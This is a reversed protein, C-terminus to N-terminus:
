RPGLSETPHTQAYPLGLIKFIARLYARYGHPLHYKCCGFSLLAEAVAVADDFEIIGSCVLWRTRRYQIVYSYGVPIIVLNAREAVPRGRWYRKTWGNPLPDPLTNFAM